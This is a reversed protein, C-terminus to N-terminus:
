WVFYSRKFSESKIILNLETGMYDRAMNPSVSAVNNNYDIKHSSKTVLFGIVNPNISVRKTKEM